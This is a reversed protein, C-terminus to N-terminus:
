GLEKEIAQITPCPYTWSHCEKCGYAWSGNPLTIEQPPHLEVVARLAHISQPDGNYLAVNLRRNIEQLLEEHTMGDREQLRMQYMPCDLFETTPRDSELPLKPVTPTAPTEDSLFERTSKPHSQSGGIPLHWTLPRLCTCPRVYTPPLPSPTPTPEWQLAAQLEGSQRLPSLLKTASM